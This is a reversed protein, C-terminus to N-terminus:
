IERANSPALVMISRCHPAGNNDLVDLMNTAALAVVGKNGCLGDTERLLQNIIQVRGSLNQTRRRKCRGSLGHCRGAM